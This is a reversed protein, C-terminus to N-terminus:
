RLDKFYKKCITLCANKVTDKANVIYHPDSGKLTHGSVLDIQIQNCGEEAAVTLMSKRIQKFKVSEDVEAKKRLDVFLGRLTQANLPNGDKNVFFFDTNNDDNYQKSYKKLLRITLSHLYACRYEDNKERDKEMFKQDLSLESKKLDCIDILTFSFNIACALFCKWRLSGSRYLKQFDSIEMKKPRPKPKGFHQVQRFRELITKIVLAEPEDSLMNVTLYNNFLTHLKSIRDRYWKKKPYKKYHELFKIQTNSLWKCKHKYQKETAVKYLENSYKIIISKDIDTILKLNKRAKIRTIETFERLWDTAEKQSKDSPHEKTRNIYSDLIDDLTITINNKFISPDIEDLKALIPMKAISAVKYKDKKLLDMFLKIITEIPLQQKKSQVTGRIYYQFIPDNPNKLYLKQLKKKEAVSVKYLIIKGDEIAVRKHINFTKSKTEKLQEPPIAILNDKSVAKDFEATIDSLTKRRLLVLKDKFLSYRNNTKDKGVRITHNGIHAVLMRGDSDKILKPPRGAMLEVLAILIKVTQNYPSQSSSDLTIYRRM